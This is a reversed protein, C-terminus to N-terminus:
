NLASLFTGSLCPLLCRRSRIVKIWNNKARCYSRNRHQDAYICLISRPAAQRHRQSCHQIKFQSFGNKVGNWRSATQRASKSTQNINNNNSSSSNNNNNNNDYTIPRLQDNTKRLTQRLLLVKSSLGQVFYCSSRHFASVFITCQLLLLFDM